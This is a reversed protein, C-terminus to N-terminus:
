KADAFVGIVNSNISQNIKLKHILFGLLIILAHNHFEAMGGVVLMTLILSFACGYLLRALFIQETFLSGSSRVAYRLVRIYFFAYFLLGVLGTKLLIYVYGNHLIPIYRLESNGLEIYFGLDTLAGFGQGFIKQPVGGQMYSEIAKFAEFGRWNTNIDSESSYDSIAIEAASKALKHQLTVEGDQPMTVILVMVGSIIVGMWAALRFNLRMGVGWLALSFIVAVGLETRSYSLCVSALCVSLVVFRFFLSPFLKISGVRHQFLSLVLALVALDGASGAESRIDNFNANFLEPNIIFSSMHICALIFGLFILIQIFDLSRLRTATWYGIYILAIPVLAYVIDRLVDHTSHLLIGYLGLILIGALPWIFKIYFLGIKFKSFVVALLAMVIILSASVETPLLKESVLVACLLITPLSLIQRQHLRAFAQM